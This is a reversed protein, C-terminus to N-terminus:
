ASALGVPVWVHDNAAAVTTPSSDRDTTAVPALRTHAVARM